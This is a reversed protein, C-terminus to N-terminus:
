KELKELKDSVLARIDDGEGYPEYGGMLSEYTAKAQELNDQEVFSDGLTIFCRALWYNQGGAKPAFAYVMDPVKDFDGRDYADQVLLYNAEAGYETSPKGALTKLVKVAAARQSTALLSKAKIYLAEDKSGINDAAQIARNFDKAGYASLMIGRAAEERSSDFKTMELLASYAALADEYHQLDYSNRALNRVATERYSGEGPYDMVKAYAERAREKDPVRDECEGMYYWAEGLNAGKPFSSIYHDLSARAQAYDGSLFSQKAANFYLKDRDKESRSSTLDNQELYEVYKQPEGKTQYISEIAALASKGLETGNQSSVVKKYCELAADYKKMNAQAMGESLLAKDVYGSDRNGSSLKQFVAVAKENSGMDMYCRGLEYIAQSYMPSTPAASEVASLVEAKKAKQGSLGYCMAQQYYPYIENVGGAADIAKQYSAIASKYDKQAMDCDARRCLADLKNQDSANPLYRDFWKIANKYDENKFAAYGLNYTLLDGEPKGDLASINYLGSLESYAGKYDGTRYRCESLWYKSLQCLGDHSSLGLTASRLYPEADKWAGAKVLETARLYNAKLYNRDQESDPNSLKNYADIAGAYDRNVLRSLAMYGYIQEGKRSTSYKKLYEEFGTGDANIDFALKAHNFTADEQIEKDYSLSAADKFAELAAVKNRQQIYCNAMQYSAIQGLSDSRNKMKSFNALAGRYDQLSYMLSGAYFYDSDKMKKREALDREYYERAAQRNGKVLYSESIIRSLHTQRERPVKDYLAVGEKLVYDYDRKLFKCDVIYFKSLNELRPDKASLELWKLADNFNKQTYSMYGLAYRSPATYDNVGKEELRIFWNRADGYHGQAYNCFGSKFIYQVSQEESLASEDVKAFEDLADAYRKVDFLNLAAQFHLENSLTTQKYTKDYSDLLRYFDSDGSRGACLLAYGQYVPSKGLSEFLTRATSYMGQDFLNLAERYTKSQASAQLSALSVLLTLTLALKKRM